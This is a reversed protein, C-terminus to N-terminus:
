TVCPWTVQGLYRPVISRIKVLGAVLGVNDPARIGGWARSGATRRDWTLRKQVTSLLPRWLYRLQTQHLDQISRHALGPRSPLSRMRPSLNSRRRRWHRWWGGSGHMPHQVGVELVSRRHSRLQSPLLRHSTPALCFSPGSGFLSTRDRQLRTTNQVADFRRYIGTAEYRDGKSNRLHDGIQRLDGRTEAADRWVNPISNIVFSATSHPSLIKGHGKAPIWARAGPPM